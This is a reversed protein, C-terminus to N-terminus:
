AGVNEKGKPGTPVQRKRMSEGKLEIRHAHHVLRDLLADALTPDAIYDHWGTVPLQSTIITSSRGHRDEILQLLALREHLSLAQLGWDDLILLHHRELRALEKVYSGDAQALHLKQLLKPLSFYAVRLGMHCAQYGLASAVFSKGCGTAGTILVNEARGIFSLDALRQVQNRDLNRGPLYDIEEVAAQYRFRASRVASVMRRHQRYSTEAQVLQALLQDATPHQDLPLQLHTEFYQAMGSLSLKRMASLTAQNNM